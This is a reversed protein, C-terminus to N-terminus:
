QKVEKISVVRVNTKTQERYDISATLAAVLMDEDKIDELSHVADSALIPQVAEPKPRRQLKAMAEISLTVLELLLFVVVIAFASMTLGEAFTTLIM